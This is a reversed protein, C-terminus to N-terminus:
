ASVVIDGRYKLGVRPSVNSANPLHIFLFQSRDADM